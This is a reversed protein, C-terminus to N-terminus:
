MSQDEIPFSKLRAYIKEKIGARLIYRVGDEENDDQDEKRFLYPFFLRYFIIYVGLFYGLKNDDSLEEFVVHRKGVNYKDLLRMIQSGDLNKGDMGLIFILSEKGMSNLIFDVKLDNNTTPAEIQIEAAIPDATPKQIISDLKSFDMEASFSGARLEKIAPIIAQISDKFRWLLFTALLAIFITPTSIFIWGESILTSIVQDLAVM